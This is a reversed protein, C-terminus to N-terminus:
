FFFFDQSLFNSARIFETIIGVKLLADAIVAVTTHFSNSQCRWKARKLIGSRVAGNPGKLFRQSMRGFFHPIRDATNHEWFVNFLSATHLFVLYLLMM